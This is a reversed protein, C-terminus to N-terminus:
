ERTEEVKEKIEGAVEDVKEKAEEVKVDAEDREFRDKVKDVTNDFKDKAKEVTDRLKDDVDSEEIKDKVKDYAGGVAGAVGAGTKEVSDGFKNAAGEVEDPMVRSIQEKYKAGKKSGYIFALIGAIIFGILAVWWGWRPSVKIMNAAEKPIEMQAMLGAKIFLMAIFGVVAAILPIIWSGANLILATILGVVAAILAILAWGNVKLKGEEDAETEIDLDEEAMEEMDEESFEETIDQLSSSMGDVMDDFKEMNVKGGFALKFGSVSAMDQDACKVVMFPLFFALIM